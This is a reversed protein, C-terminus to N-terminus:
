LDMVTIARGTAEPASIAALWSRLEGAAADGYARALRTLMAPGDLRYEASGEAELVVTAVMAALRAATVLSLGRDRAALFGARFGDGAGTPDVIEAVPVAPVLVSPEGAAEIRAGSEGLTTIWTGVASLVDDETWGTKTLLLAHEYENTFLYRAGGILGRIAAPDLAAMQQSPDAAFPLGLTRCEETHRVMAAPDNAGVLVLVDAGIRGTVDALSIDRAATMAGPYFTAIQNQRQDTTGWFRATYLDTRVLVSGTDVGERELWARYGAFDSGAAGVLVPHHGLRGLGASINAAVGGYHIDLRELLFSLSVHDLHGAVLQESFLGPFHSLHDVAVSGTVMIRM